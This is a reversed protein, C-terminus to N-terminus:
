SGDALIAKVTSSQTLNLADIQQQPLVLEGNFGTDIWVKIECPQQPAPLLVPISLLARGQEDVHGIM